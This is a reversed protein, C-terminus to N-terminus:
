LNLYTKLISDYMKVNLEQFIDIAEISYNIAKYFDGIRRYVLSTNYLTTAIGRKDDLERKIDLARNYYDLAKEM